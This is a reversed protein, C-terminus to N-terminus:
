IRKKSESAIFGYILFSILAAFFCWVSTFAEIYFIYTFIYSFAALGGIFWLMRNSTFYFPIITAMTYFFTSIGQLWIPITGFDYVINCPNLVSIPYVCLYIIFSLAFIIGALLCNILYKGNQQYKILSTPIWIPWVIGAIALFFHAAIMRIQTFTPNVFSLWVVGEALQQIGFILPIYAIMQLRKNNQARYISAIGCILLGIGSSFSATTSFCM